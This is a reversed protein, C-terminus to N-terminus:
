GVGNTNGSSSYAYYGLSGQIYLQCAPALSIGPADLLGFDDGCSSMLSQFVWGLSEIYFTWYGVGEMISGDPYLMGIPYEIAQLANEALFKCKQTFESDEPESDIFSLACMVHGGGVVAGWNSSTQRFGIASYSALGGGTYTSIAPDFFFKEMQDRFYQREDEDLYDYLMDYAIAMGPSIMGTDLYHSQVNWDPWSFANKVESWMRDLYKKDGSVLNAVALNMIRTRVEECPEILRFLTKKYEVGEADMYGECKKLLNAYATKLEDSAAVKARLAPIEDAHIFMRPHQGKSNSVVADYIEDGTPRDFQMYRYIKDSDETNVNTAPDDKLKRNSQSLLVFGRGDDYAYKSLVKSVYSAAPLYVVGDKEVPAADLTDGASTTVSGIKVTESGYVVSGNKTVIPVGFAKSILESPVMKVGNEDEYAASGFDSYKQKKGDLFYYDNNTMFVADNGIASKGSTRSIQSNLNLTNVSPTTTVEEEGEPPPLERLEKGQYVKINNMYFENNGAKTISRCATRISNGLVGGSHLAVNEKVLQRDTYVDGTGSIFDCAIAINKWEGIPLKTITTSNCTLTGSGSLTLLNSYGDGQTRFLDVTTTEMSKLYLDTEFVTNYSSSVNVKLNFFCDTKGLQQIRVYQPGDKELSAWGVQTEAKQQFEI